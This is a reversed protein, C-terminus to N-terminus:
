FVHSKSDNGGQTTQMKTPLYNAAGATCAFLCWGLWATPLYNAVSGGPAPLCVGQGPWGPGVPFHLWVLHVVGSPGLWSLGPQPAGAPFAWAFLCARQRQQACRVTLMM